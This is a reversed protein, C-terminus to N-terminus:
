SKDKDDKEEKWSSRPIGRPQPTMSLPSPSFRQGQGKGSSQQSSDQSEKEAKTELSNHDFEELLDAGEYISYITTVKHLVDNALANQIFAKAELMTKFSGVTSEPGRGYRKTVRYLM